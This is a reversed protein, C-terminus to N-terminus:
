TPPGTATASACRRRLRPRRSRRKPSAAARARRSAAPTVHTCTSKSVPRSRRLEVAVEVQHQVEGDRLRVVEVAVDRRVDFREAEEHLVHRRRAREQVARRGGDVLGVPMVAEDLGIREAVVVAREAEHGRVADGLDRGFRHSAEAGRAYSMGVVIARRETGYPSSKPQGANWRAIIRRAVGTGTCASAGLSYLGIWMSSMTAGSGRVARRQM